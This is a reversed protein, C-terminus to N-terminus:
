GQHIDACLNLRKLAHESFGVVPGRISDMLLRRDGTASSRPPNQAVGAGLLFFLFMKIHPFSESDGSASVEEENPITLGIRQSEGAHECGAIRRKPM